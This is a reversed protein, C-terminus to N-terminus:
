MHGGQHKNCTCVCVPQFHYCYPQRPTCARTARSSQQFAQAPTRPCPCSCTCTYIRTCTHTRRELAHALHVYDHADTRTQTSPHVDLTTTISPAGVFLVCERHVHAYTHMYSLSRRHVSMHTHSSARMIYIRYIYIYIYIWTCRHVSKQHENRTHTNSADKRARAHAHEHAHVEKRVCNLYM